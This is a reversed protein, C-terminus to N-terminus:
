RDKDSRDLRGVSDVEEIGNGDHGLSEVPRYRLLHRGSEALHHGSAGTSAGGDPTRHCPLGASRLFM